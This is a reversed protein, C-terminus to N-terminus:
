RYFLDKRPAVELNCALRCYVQNKLHVINALRNYRGFLGLFHVGHSHYSELLEANNVSPTIIKTQCFTIWVKSNLNGKELIM